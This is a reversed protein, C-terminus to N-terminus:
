IDSAQTFASILKESFSVRLKMSARVSSKTAKKEHLEDALVISGVKM